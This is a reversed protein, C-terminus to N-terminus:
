KGRGYIQSHHDLHSLIPVEKFSPPLLVFDMSLGVQNPTKIMYFLRWSLLQETVCFKGYITLKLVRIELNPLKGCNKIKSSDRSKEQYIDVWLVIKVQPVCHQSFFDFTSKKVQGISKEGISDFSYDNSCNFRKHIPNIALRRCM